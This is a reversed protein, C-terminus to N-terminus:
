RGYERWSDVTYNAKLVDLVKVLEPYKKWQERLEDFTKGVALGLGIWNYWNYLWDDDACPQNLERCLHADVEALATPKTEGIRTLAFCSAM